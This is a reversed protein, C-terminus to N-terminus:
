FVGYKKTLPGILENDFFIANLATQFERSVERVEGFATDSSADEARLTQLRERTQEDNLMGLFRDYSAFLSRGVDVSINYQRVAYALVELPTMQFQMRLYQTLYARLEDPAANRDAPQLDLQCAFCALLGSGFLLKRSMRLKFNRLGWGKGRRDRQKSAFDVAMTRWFRAIDNLLFRPVKYRTRDATLFGSGEELYRGIVGRIVREYAEQAKEGIAVSELLLLMRQTTNRNTDEQGGIQHILDHSFVLSAFPGQANPEKFERDLVAKIGQAITLHDSNAQGDVLYTWDVDSKETWEKRALSGFVVLSTDLSVWQSLDESLVREIKREIEQARHYSSLINPAEIHLEALLVQLPITHM